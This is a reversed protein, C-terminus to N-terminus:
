IDELRGFISRSNRFSPQKVDHAMHALPRIKASAHYLQAEARKFDQKNQTYPSLGAAAEYVGVIRGAANRVIDFSDTVNYTISGALLGTLIITKLM